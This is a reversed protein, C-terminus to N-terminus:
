KVRYLVLEHARQSVKLTTKLGRTGIASLLTYVANKANGGPINRTDIIIAKNVNKMAARIAAGYRSREFQPLTRKSVVTFPVVTTNTKTM